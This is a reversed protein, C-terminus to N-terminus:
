ETPAAGGTNQVGTTAGVLSTLVFNVIAYSATVIVLGVLANTIMTRAKKVQDVSGGATMWLFGAYLMLVLLVVGTFSLLVFIINGIIHPLDGTQTLGAPSAANNTGQKVRDLFSQASVALPFVVGIIPAILLRFRSRM